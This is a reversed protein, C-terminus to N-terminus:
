MAPQAAPPAGPPAPGQFPAPPTGIPPGLPWTPPIPPPPAGPQTVNSPMTGEITTPTQGLPPLVPATQDNWFYRYEPRSDLQQKMNYENRENTIARGQSDTRVVTPKLFVLLNVKQRSRTDYRFLAGLVPLNGLVPVRDSGDAFSDQILGGLVAVQTDDVVVSSELARKSLVLGNTTTSVTTDIRSVEQYIILRIAGGETIQPKVRLLVGIDKREITQFPQVTSNGGTTAYQGTVLPINQGVIIRAEENDLTLLTPTSLINAGVSQELARALFALNTVLGIGPITVTGNVIGANLGQGLAALNAAGSIINNSNTDGQPTFNTGGFGQVGNRGLGGLFQWQIGFQAAKDAAVEVILAEVFVQARRVDLREIIARLNNYLPEPGMVILANNATDAQVTLGGPLTTAANSVGTFPNASSPPPAAQAAGQPANMGTVASTLTNGIATPQTTSAPTDSGGSMLARLTQAVRAAEANKLYVIVMNGGPRGPTDLQEILAKVRAARASNDSRLMVSNSRPDAVITVRQQPEPAQGAAAATGAEAGLLRNVLPVLDLASAHKLTVIMPEGAPAQDLSAVIKEIRRLNEAYDTIILANTAPFAAITNNPTILPRLVNVMQTASEYRLSIVRTTLVDGAGAPGITSGHMKAETELVLKTVGNGEIAAVGQLRLASLLTPYVLSKPIPRASIINVTGKIKPDLVFNRGTIESVAKVVADIDANVFNLTVVDDDAAIATLSVALLVALAAGRRLFRAGEGFLSLVHSLDPLSLRLM